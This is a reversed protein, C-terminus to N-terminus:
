LCVHTADVKCEDGLRDLAKLMPDITGALVDRTCDGENKYKAEKLAKSSKCALAARRKLGRENTSTQKSGMSYDGQQMRQMNKANSSYTIENSRKAAEFIDGVSAVVPTGVILFPLGLMDRRRHQPHEPQHPAEFGKVMWAMWCSLVLLVM